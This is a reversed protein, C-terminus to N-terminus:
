GMWGKLTAALKEHLERLRLIRPDQRRLMRSYKLRGRFKRFLIYYRLAFAGSLPLSVLFLLTYLFNRLFFAAVVTLLLHFLPILIMSLVMKFSSVFAKDEVKNALHVTLREPLINALLGYLFVPLTILFALARWLMGAFSMPKKRLVWNRLNLEELLGSYTNKEEQLQQAGAPSDRLHKETKAVFLQYTRIKDGPRRPDLRFVEAVEPLFLVRLDNIMEYHEEDSIHVMQKKMAESLEEIATVLAKNAHERYLPFYKKLSVPEGYNVIVEQKCKAYDSYEIGTPIILVDESFNQKEAAQFAARMIGKKLRRLRRYPAHNGEPLIVLSTDGELV